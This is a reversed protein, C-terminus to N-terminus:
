GYESSRTKREQRGIGTDGKPTELNKLRRPTRIRSASSGNITPVKARPHPHRQSSNRRSRGRLELWVQAPIEELRPSLPYIGPALDEAAIQDLLILAEAFLLEVIEDQVSPGVFNVPFGGNVLYLVRDPLHMAEVHPHIPEVATAAARLYGLDIEHDKSSASVLITGDALRDLLVPGISRSGSAGVVVGVNALSDIEDLLLLGDLKIAVKKIADVDHAAVVMRRAQLSRCVGRGVWGYGNVLALRGATSLGLERLITDLAHGVAEGVHDGEVEKLRTEACNVQPLCLDEIRRAAWVGQKTIEVSGRVCARYSRFFKHFCTITYGGVEHLLLQRDQRRCRDLSAGLEARITEELEDFRPTLVRIGQRRLSEVVHEKGSYSVGIVVDIPFFRHSTLLLRLTDEYLHQVVFQRVSPRPKMEVRRAVEGLLDPLITRM